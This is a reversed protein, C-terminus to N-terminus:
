FFETVTKNFVSGATLKIEDPILKNLEEVHQAAKDTEAKSCYIIKKQNTSNQFLGNKSNIISIVDSLRFEDGLNRGTIQTFLDFRHVIDETLTKGIVSVDIVGITKTTFEPVVPENEHWGKLPKCASGDAEILTVDFRAINGELEDIDPAIAKEDGLKACAYVGPKITEGKFFQGSTDVNMLSNIQRKGMKTTTTVLVKLGNAALENAVHIMLSSKGGAGVICVVDGKIIGLSQTFIM